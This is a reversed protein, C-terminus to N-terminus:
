ITEAPILAEIQKQRAAEIRADDEEVIESQGKAVEEGFIEELTPVEGGNRIIDSAVYNQIRLSFIQLDKRTIEKPRNLMKDMIRAAVRDSLALSVLSQNRQMMTRVSVETAVYIPSVMGRALNFVRSFVSEISMGALAPNARFGMGNGIAFDTWEAFGVMGKYHEDGLVAKMVAQHKPTNVYHIIVSADGLVQTPDNAVIETKKGAKIELGRMYMYSMASRVETEDMGQNVFRQVHRNISSPTAEEFVANFFSLPDNVLNEYNSMVKLTQAMSDVEQQAAIRITSANDNLKQQTDRYTQRTM